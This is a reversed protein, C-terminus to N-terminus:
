NGKRRSTSQLGVMAQGKLEKTQTEIGKEDPHAKCHGRTCDGSHAQYFTEIGKEDPHAKCHEPIFVVHVIPQTEIGKEDPHAKCHSQRSELPEPPM